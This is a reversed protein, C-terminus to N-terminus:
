VAFCIGAFKDNSWIVKFKKKGTKKSALVGDTGPAPPTDVRLMAGGIPNFNIVECRKKREAELEMEAQLHLPHRVEHRARSVPLLHGHVNLSQHDYTDTILSGPDSEAGILNVPRYSDDQQLRTLVSDHVMEGYNLWRGIPRHEPSETRTLRGIKKNWWALARYGANMSDHQAALARQESEAAPILSDLYADDLKLGAEMARRTMWDLAILSLDNNRYGGGVDSHVGTFWVQELHQKPDGGDWISPAFPPRCEDIAMAQYARAVNKCLHVDSFGVWRRTLKRLIPTPIGLAGVTDWVGLLDISPKHNTTILERIARFKAKNRKKQSGRYYDLIQPLHDLDQKTLIGVHDLLGSLLRVTYAGRSFGFLFLEDGKAYNHALFRYCDAINKRIGWGTGGRLKKEIFGVSESGIGADYFSVQHIKSEKDYPVVARAMKLVNTNCVRGDSKEEPSNWTGDSCIIIRKKM